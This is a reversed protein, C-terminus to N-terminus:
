NGGGLGGSFDTNQLNNLYNSTPLLLSIVRNWRVIDAADVYVLDRPKMVFREALLMGDPSKSSLHFIEPRDGGRYVYIQYPNAQWQDINGADSLIEALSMQHRQMQQSGHSRVAGLVFIKNFEDNRVMVVDGHELRVNQSTDGKEYLALLDILRTSNGRTLTVASRDASDTFGGAQNVAEVMTM